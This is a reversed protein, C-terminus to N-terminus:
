DEAWGEIGPYYRVSRGMGKKVLLGRNELDILDRAATPTSTQAIREHKRTTMGGAYGKPGADLLKKMTKLQRDNLAQEYMRVQFQIRQLSHEITECAFECAIAIQTLMWEMWPTVDLSISRQATELAKYYNAKCSEIQRSLTVMRAAQGMDQGLALQLIARGIRGNGDDFPHLTEFWLHSMAARMLGDMPQSGTSPHTENFWRVFRGSQDELADAPPASFHVKSHGIAGSVIEMAGSRLQGVEIVQMGSFGTPFLAAHWNCMRQLSLPEAINLSADQLIDILGEIHRQGERPPAGATDLGLRMAISSRVSHVDLTEGEISSTKLAEDTLADRVHPQLGELGIIAAKALLQGQAQRARGLVAQCQGANFSLAPWAQLQWIWSQHSQM